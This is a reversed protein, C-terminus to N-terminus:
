FNFKKFRRVIEEWDDDRAATSWLAEADAEHLGHELAYRMWEARREDETVTAGRAEVETDIM